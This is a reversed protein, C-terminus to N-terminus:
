FTPKSSRGDGRIVERLSYDILIPYDPFRVAVVLQGVEVVEADRGKQSPCFVGEKITVTDGVNIPPKAEM